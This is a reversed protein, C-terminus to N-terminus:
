VAFLRTVRNRAQGSRELAEITNRFTAAAPNSVIAEVETREEALATEFASPFDEPRLQNWPPVGGYPGSWPAALANLETASPRTADKAMLGWIAAATVVIAVGAPIGYKGVFM